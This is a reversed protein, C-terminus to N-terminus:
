PCARPAPPPTSARISRTRAAEGGGREYTGSYDGRFRTGTFVASDSCIEVDNSRDGEAESGLSLRARRPHRPTEKPRRNPATDGWLADLQRGRSTRWRAGFTRAAIAAGSSSSPTTRAPRDDEQPPLIEPRSCRGEAREAAAAPRGADPGRGQRAARRRRACPAAGVALRQLGDLRGGADLHLRTPFIPPASSATLQPAGAGARCRRLDALLVDAGRSPAPSPRARISGGLTALLRTLEAADAEDVKTVVLRDATEIQRRGLPEERLQALGNLADVTVVIEGVVIHHVLVPDARIAEVIPAPIPSGAPKSCSRPRPAGGRVRGAGSTASRRAAPRRARGEGRLLRLRRGAGRAGVRAQLLADDVPTEAAENVIVFADRFAGAHLQHRLWTTKGSGLFGGLLTLRMRGDRAANM